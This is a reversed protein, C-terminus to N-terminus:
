LAEYKMVTERSEPDGTDYEHLFLFGMREYLRKGAPSAVLYIPVGAERAIDLGYQVLVKGIGRGQYGPLVSLSNLILYDKEAMTGPIWDRCAERRRQMTTEGFDLLRQQEDSIPWLWDSFWKPWAPFHNRVKRVFAVYIHLLKERFTLKRLYTQLQRPKQTGLYILWEACGIVEGDCLAVRTLCRPTALQYKLGKVRRQYM